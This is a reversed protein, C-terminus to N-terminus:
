KDIIKEKGDKAAASDAPTMLKGPIQIRPNFAAQMEEIGKLYDESSRKEDAMHEAREASLSNYYMVQQQLDKKVSASVKAALTTDGAMYCAQLFRLSNLNHGNGRSTMGYGFNDQDIMKDAKQLVKKADEKRNKEVLDLALATYATRISNLHRRNEEDFYVGKKDANGFAFKNMAKDYM